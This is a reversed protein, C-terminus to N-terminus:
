RFFLFYNEGEVGAVYGVDGLFGFASGRVGSPVMYVGPMGPMLLDVM